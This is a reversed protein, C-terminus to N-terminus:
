LMIENMLRDDLPMNNFLLDKLECSDITGGKDTDLWNFIKLINEESLLEKKDIAAVIFEFYDIFGSDDADIKNFL